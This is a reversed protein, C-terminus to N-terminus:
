LSYTEDCDKCRAKNPEIKDFFTWITNAM